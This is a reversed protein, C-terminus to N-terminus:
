MGAPLPVVARYNAHSPHALLLQTNTIAFSALLTTGPPLEHLEGVGVYYLNGDPSSIPDRTVTQLWDMHFRRRYYNLAEDRPFGSVLKWPTSPRGHRREFAIIADIVEHSSADYAWVTTRNLNVHRGFNVAALVTFLAVVVGVAMRPAIRPCATAVDDVVFSIFVAFVVVYVLATRDLPYLTGLLTSELQTALIAIAFLLGARTLASWGPRRIWRWATWAVALLAVVVVAAEGYPLWPPQCSYGCTSNRLLSGITDAVLGNHGGYYLQGLRQLHRLYLIGPLLSAASACVIAVAGRHARSWRTGGQWIKMFFLDLMEVALLALVLNLAGFNAYFALAAFTGTAALRGLGRAVSTTSRGVLLSAIAAVSFALSLGYGRALSFFELLFPNLLLVAFGAVKAAIHRLQALLALSAAGYLGFVVVNPLRLALESEGFLHQGVHMLFTNLWQNNTTEVFTQEGHIIGYSLAEDSVFSVGEARAVVYVWAAVVAIAMLGLSLLTVDRRTSWLRHRIGDQRRV